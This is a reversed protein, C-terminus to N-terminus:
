FADEEYKFQKIPKIFVPCLLVNQIKQVNQILTKEHKKNCRVIWKMSTNKIELINGHIDPM